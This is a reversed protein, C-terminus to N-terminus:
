RLSVSGPLDLGPSLPWLELGAFGSMWFRIVDPPESRLLRCPELSVVPVGPGTPSSLAAPLRLPPPLAPLSIEGTALLSWHFRYAAMCNKVKAPARRDDSTANRHLKRSIMPVIAVFDAGNLM